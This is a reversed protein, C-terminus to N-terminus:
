GSWCLRKERRDKIRERKRGSPFSVFFFTMAWGSTGMAMVPESSLNIRYKSKLVPWHIWEIIAWRSLTLERDISGVPSKKIDPPWSEETLIQSIPEFFQTLSNVTHREERRRARAGRKGGKGREGRKTKVFPSFLGVSFLKVFSYITDIEMWGQIHTRTTSGVGGDSKKYLTFDNIILSYFMAIVM